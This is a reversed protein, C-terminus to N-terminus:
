ADSAAVGPAPQTSDMVDEAVRRLPTDSQRSSRRLMTNAADEAVHHREMLIGRSQAIVDRGRLAEQLQRSLDEMSVDMAASVLFESARTAFMTSLELEPAAFARARLSYINLAGVPRTQTLLPTSLISNIGRDRARPIFAPWRREDDLSEVHFWHGETAAAVCPGEGTAYQDRDMGTVTADSAAVTTLTGRRSLCVSVGDAGAVTVRALAVVLRLAADLVEENAPM